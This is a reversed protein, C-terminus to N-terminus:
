CPVPRRVGARSSGGDWGAPQPGHAGASEKEPEELVPSFSRATDRIERYRKNRFGYQGPGDVEGTAPRTEM